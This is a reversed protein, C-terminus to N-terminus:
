VEVKRKKWTTWKDTHCDLHQNFYSCVLSDLTDNFDGLVIFPEGASYTQMRDLLIKGQMERAVEFGQKAKLHTVAVFLHRDNHIDELM